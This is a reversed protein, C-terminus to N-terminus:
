EPNTPQIPRPSRRQQQRRSRQKALNAYTKWNQAKHHLQLKLDKAALAYGGDAGDVLHFHANRRDFILCTLLARDSVHVGYALRGTQSRQELYQILQQVQTSNGAIVMRLMDDIKQYDSAARVEAKYRGWPVDGISLKLGMFLYGLANEILIKVLYKLRSFSQPAIARAKVEADLKRPNFALQLSEIDIPHYDQPDGFIARIAQFVDYYVQSSSEGTSELAAVILSITRGHPSQVEQWRCELGSLNAETPDGDVNLQYATERKVLETALTIGGGLFSAQCYSPSLRFKAVKLTQHQNITEVPVAGVRLDMEFAQRAIARVSILARRAAELHLAPVLISAGDGGYVFPAEFPQLANLVAMISSAGLLNVERYRGEAIAETSSTIDTILVYWDNPVQMYCAPNALDFLDTLIPLDAYFGDTPMDTVLSIFPLEIQCIVSM